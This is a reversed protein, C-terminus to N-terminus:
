LAAAGAAGRGAQEGTVSAPPNGSLDPVGLTLEMAEVELATNQAARAAMLVAPWYSPDRETLAANGAAALADAPALLGAKLQIIIPLPGKGELSPLWTVAEKEMGGRLLGNAFLEAEARSVLRYDQQFRLMAIYADKARRESLYSEIALRRTERLLEAPIEPASWLLRSLYARTRGGEAQRVATRAAVSLAERALEGSIRPPLRDVRQLLQEPLNLQLLLSIRLREWEGWGEAQASSPQLQEVRELALRPAGAGVIHRTIELLDPSVPPVQPPPDPQAAHVAGSVLLAVLLGIRM